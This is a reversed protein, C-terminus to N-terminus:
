ILKLLEEFTHEDKSVYGEINGKTEKMLYDGSELGSIFIIKINPNYDKIFSMIQIGDMAWRDKSNLYYDLVVFDPNESIHRLCEEGTKYFSVVFDDQYNEFNSKLFHAYVPDDEVVFIRRM